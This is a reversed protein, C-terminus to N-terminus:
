DNGPYHITTAVQGSRPVTLQATRQEGEYTAGVTYRGPQLDVLLWPTPCSAQLVVRGRGDRIEVDVDAVYAGSTEAFVLKAPYRKWHPDDRSEFSIGTCVFQTGDYVLPRDTRDVTPTKATVAAAHSLPLGVVAVALLASVARGFSTDFVKIKMAM